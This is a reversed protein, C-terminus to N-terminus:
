LLAVEDVVLVSKEALVDKCRANVGFMVGSDVVLLSIRRCVICSLAAAKLAVSNSLSSSRSSSVFAVARNSLTACHLASIRVDSSSDRSIAEIGQRKWFITHRIM